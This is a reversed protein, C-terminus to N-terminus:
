LDGNAFLGLIGFLALAYHFSLDNPYSGGARNHLLNLYIVLAIIMLFLGILIPVNEAQRFQIISQFLKKVPINLLFISILLYFVVLRILGQDIIGINRALLNISLLIVSINISPILIQHFTEKKISPYHM